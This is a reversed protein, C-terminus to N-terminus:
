GAQEDCVEGEVLGEVPEPPAEPHPAPQLLLKVEATIEDLSGSFGYYSKGILVIWDYPWRVREAPTTMRMEASAGEISLSFISYGAANQRAQVWGHLLPTDLSATLGLRRRHQPNGQWVGSKYRPDSNM